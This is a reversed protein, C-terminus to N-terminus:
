CSKKRGERSGLTYVFINGALFGAGGGVIVSVPVIWLLHFANMM